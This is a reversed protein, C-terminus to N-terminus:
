MYLNEVFKSKIKQITESQVGIQRLYEPVGGWEQDIWNLIWKMNYINSGSIDTTFKTIYTSSCQYDVLIDEREVGVSSLILMALIGTRDKGAACHFLVAGESDAVVELAKRIEKGGNRLMLRYMRHLTKTEVVSSNVIDLQELKTTGMLSCNIYDMGKGLRDPLDKTESPFRLDIVTNVGLHEIKEIDEEQSSFDKTLQKKITSSAWEYASNVEGIELVRIPIIEKPYAKNEHRIEISAIINEAVTKDGGKAVTFSCEVCIDRCDIVWFHSTYWIGEEQFSDVSYASQVGRILTLEAAPNEKLEYSVCEKGYNTDAGRYASIRFNGSWKDPDYFLFSEETDEFERWGAPYELSFWGGPAIYKM